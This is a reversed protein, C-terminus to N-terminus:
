KNVVLGSTVGAALNTYGTTGTDIIANDIITNITAGGSPTIDIAYQPKSGVGDFSVNVNSVVVSDVAGGTGDVTLAGVVSAGNLGCNILNVNTITSDTMGGASYFGGEQSSEVTIDEFTMGSCTAPQSIGRGNVSKIKIGKITSNIAASNRVGHSASNGGNVTGNLLFCSDVTLSGSFDNILVGNSGTDVRGYDSVEFGDVSSNSGNLRIGTADCGLVKINFAKVGTAGKTEDGFSAGNGISTTQLTNVITIDRATSDKSGVSFCGGHTLEHGCDEIYINEFYNNSGVSSERADTLGSEGCNTITGHVAKSNLNGQNIGQPSGVSFHVGAKDCNDVTFNSLTVNLSYDIDFGDAKANIFACDDVVVDDVGYLSLAEAESSTNIVNAKNGDFEVGSIRVNSDRDGSGGVAAPIINKNTLPSKYDPDTALNYGDHLKLGSVKPGLGRMNFNSNCTLPKHEYKGDLTLIIQNLATYDFASQLATTNGPTYAGTVAGFARPSMNAVPRLVMALPLTSHAIIYTGNPTVTGIGVVDWMAGGGNGTDREKINLAAGDFIKLPSTENAAEDLTEFPIVKNLDTIVGSNKLNVGSDKSNGDDDFTVINDEMALPQKDMKKSSDRGIERANQQAIMVGLDLGRENTKAPFPGYEQYEILQTEPVTRDIRVVEGNIPAVDFTVDGGSEDGVGSVSYGSTQEVDDLYIFLHDESYTLFNYAFTTVSGNGTYSITSNTTEVTM